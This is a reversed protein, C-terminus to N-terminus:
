DDDRVGELEEATSFGRTIDSFVLHCVRGIVRNCLMDVPYKWNKKDTLNAKQAEEITYVVRQEAPWEPRKVIAVAQEDNCQSFDLYFTECRPDGLCWAMAVQARPAVHGEIIDFGNLSDIVSMGRQRGAMIALMIQQKNGYGDFLKSDWVMLATNWAEERNRPEFSTDFEADHVVMASTMPSPQPAKRKRKQELPNQPQQHAIHDAAVMMDRGVEAAKAPTTLGSEPQTPEADPVRVAKHAHEDLKTEPWPAPESTPPVTDQLATAEVSTIDPDPEVAEDGGMGYNEPDGGMGYGDADDAAVPERPAFIRDVDVPADARLTTLMLDRELSSMAVANGDDDHVTVRTMVAEVIASACAEGMGEPLEAAIEFPKKENVLKVLAPVDLGANILKAARGDSVGRIGPIHDATDGAIALLQPVQTATIAWKAEPSLEKDCAGETSVIRVQCPPLSGGAEAVARLALLDKDASYVTIQYTDGHERFDNEAVAALAGVCSAIMDDAECGPHELLYFGEARLEAITDARQGKMQETDDDRQAKYAAFGKRRDYPPSDLAVVCHQHREAIRRIKSLTNKQSEDLPKSATGHWMRYWIASKDIIAIDHTTM